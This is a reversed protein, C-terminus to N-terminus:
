KDVKMKRYTEFKKDFCRKLIREQVIHLIDSEDILLRDHILM